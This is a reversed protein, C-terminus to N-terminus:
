KQENNNVIVKKITQTNFEDTCKLFYVGNALHSIDITTLSNFSQIAVNIRRGDSNLLSIAIFGGELTLQNSVPNPYAIVANDRELLTNIGSSISNYEIIYYLTNTKDIDNWQGPTGYATGGSPWGTLAIAGADQNSNYDDPENNSGSGNTQGWNNYASAVASGMGTGAQGQGNWFNTGVGNNDGDWLWTGETTIDSAGIWIYSTGGGDGVAHYTSSITASQIASYIANQEAADDIEVLYGGDAVACIAANSFNKLEKIIKYSHGNYNFVVSNSATYCATQAFATNAFILILIYAFVKM